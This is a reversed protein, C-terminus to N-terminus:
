LPPIVLSFSNQDGAGHTFGCLKCATPPKSNDVRHPVSPVTRLYAFMSNLDEDSVGRLNWWPMIPALMRAKVWGTRMVERFLGEDYYLFGRRLRPSIPVRSKVGRVVFFSGASLHTGDDAARQGAAYPLRPMRRDDGPVEGRKEATSKDPEPVPEVLPQPASRILYRVPFILETKPVERRVPPLSRLTCSSRLSIRMRCTVSIRTCCSPFCRAVTTASAKAFRGRWNITPGTGRERTRTPRTNPPRVDGPLDKLPFTPSGAGHGAVVPADHRTWDRESHCAFCELVNEALYRGRAVCEPTPTFERDTLKSGQSWYVSAM